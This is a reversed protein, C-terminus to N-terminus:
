AAYQIDKHKFYKAVRDPTQQLITMHNEVNQQLEKESMNRM